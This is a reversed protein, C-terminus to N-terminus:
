VWTNPSVSAVWVVSCQTLFLLTRYEALEGDELSCPVVWVDPLLSFPTMYGFTCPSKGARWLIGRLGFAM